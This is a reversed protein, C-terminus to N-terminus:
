LNKSFLLLSDFAFDIFKPNKSPQLNDTSIWVTNMKLRKGFEMDSLSDGAMISKKFNIQSFDKKAKLGMGVQPKRNFSGSTRLDPCYYIKDIRGGHDNVELIMKRHIEELTEAKMLGKGVGQQNTVVVIKGFIQNFTKMAELVGDLFRFDEWTKVYDDVLRHNIVGDRDLFLTWEKSINLNRLTM